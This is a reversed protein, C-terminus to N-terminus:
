FTSFNCASDTGQFLIKSLYYHKSQSYNLLKQTGFSALSNILENRDINGSGDRDYTRFISTWDAVYKWLAIFEEFNVSGDNDRDFL